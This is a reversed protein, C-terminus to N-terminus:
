FCLSYALMFNAGNERARCKVRVNRKEVRTYDSLSGPSFPLTPPSSKSHVAIGDLSILFRKGKSGWLVDAFIGKLKILQSLTLSDDHGSTILNTM